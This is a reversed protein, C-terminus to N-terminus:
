VVARPSSGAAGPRGQTSDELELTLTVDQFWGPLLSPTPKQRLTKGKANATVQDWDIHPVSPVTEVPTVGNDQEETALTAEAAGADYRFLRQM